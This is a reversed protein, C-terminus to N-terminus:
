ERLRRPMLRLRNYNIQDAKEGKRRQHARADKFNRGEGYFFRRSSPLSFSTVFFFKKGQIGALLAVTIFTVISKMKLDARM